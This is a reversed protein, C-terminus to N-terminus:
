ASSPMRSKQRDRPSPSTYLLCTQITQGKLDTDFDVDLFKNIPTSPYNNYEQPTKPTKVFFPLVRKRIIGTHYSRAVLEQGVYCGKNFSISGFFDMNMNLPIQDKLEWGESVGNLMRYIEYMEQPEHRVQKQLQVNEQVPTVIRVGMHISRPDFYAIDLYDTDDTIKQDKYETLPFDVIDRYLEGTQENKRVLEEEILSFIKLQDHLNDISVKKRLSHKKIHQKLTDAYDKDCDLWVENPDFFAKDNQMRLPRVMFADTIIRGNTGLFCGHIACRKDLIKVDNTTLGQLISHADRGIVSLISRNKLHTFMKSCSHIYFYYGWTSRDRICM